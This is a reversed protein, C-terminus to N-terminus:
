KIGLGTIGISGNISTAVKPTGYYNITSNGNGAVNLNESVWIVIQNSGNVEAEVRRSKLGGADYTGAGNMGIQQTQVQGNIATIGSGNSTFILNDAILHELQISGSGNSTLSLNDISLSPASVDGSGSVDLASISKITLEFKIPQSPEYIPSLPNSDLQLSLVGDKVDTNIYPLINDDATVILKEADGQLVILEGSGGMIVSNINSILRSESIVGGSGSVVGGGCGCLFLSIVLTSFLNQIKM